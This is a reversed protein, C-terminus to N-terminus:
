EESRDARSQFAGKLMQMYNARTLADPDPVSKFNIVGRMERVSEYGHQEMWRALGEALTKLHGTGKQLLASVVQVADAGAMISKVVDEATHVGGTVALSAKIKHSLLALWRLRLRLEESTSLELRPVVDLSGVDIDPQYFRNFIVIGDAGASELRYIANATSSFYPGIKVAVPISVSQKVQNLIEICRQEVQEGTEELSAGLFFLNLELASAGAEEMRRAYDTWGGATSGNLSAIVPVTVADKVRQIHELYEEPGIRFDPLNPFYSTAEGFSEAPGDMHSHMALQEQLIQEEFLSHLIVASAGAEELRKIEELDESLPSAGPMLPSKLKLGIYDTSLDM